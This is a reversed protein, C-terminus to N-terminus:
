SVGGAIVSASSSARAVRKEHYPGDDGEFVPFGDGAGDGDDRDSEIKEEKEVGCVVTGTEEEEVEGIKGDVFGSMREEANDTPAPFSAEAV